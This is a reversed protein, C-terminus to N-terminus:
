HLITQTLFLAQHTRQMCIVFALDDSLLTLPGYSKWIRQRLISQTVALTLNAGQMCGGISGVSLLELSPYTSKPLTLALNAGHM